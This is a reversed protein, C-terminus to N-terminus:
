RPLKSRWKLQVKPVVRLNYRNMMKMGTSCTKITKTGNIGMKSSSNMTEEMLDRTKEVSLGQADM